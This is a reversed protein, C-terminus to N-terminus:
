VLGSGFGFFEIDVVRAVEITRVGVGRVGPGKGYHYCGAGVCSVCGEVVRGEVGEEVVGGGGAGVGEDEGAGEEVCFVGEDARAREGAWWIYGGVGCGQGIEKAVM